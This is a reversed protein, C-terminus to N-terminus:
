FVHAIIEMLIAHIIEEEDDPEVNLPIDYQRSSDYHYRAVGAGPHYIPVPEATPSKADLESWGVHVRFPRAQVDLQSWGVNVRMPSAQVDLGGWGVFVAM